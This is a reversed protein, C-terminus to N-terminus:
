FQFYIFSTSQVVPFLIIIIVSFAFYISWRLVVKQRSIWDIVDVKLSAMDYIALLLISIGILLAEGKSIGLQSKIYTKPSRIGDLSHSFVYLADAFSNARFLIWLLSCILFTFIVLIIKGVNMKKRVKNEIIQLFGHLGGWAVYTWNAGHWLGSVLFTFFLNFRQRKEGCRNGGMPIYIYDRFWTSLSIHWRSWFEKLSSSFYPSKFNVMLEIGMLKATGIAIDSYGSFDCYIQISFFFIVLLLDIGVYNEVSAYVTDVYIALVDAIAFKKFFGWAMLKLGYTAQNYDFSKEGNLEPLLHSAREIPGAVLQPFFSVFTAYKGLHKEPLIEGKYVDIVYSLTQFTYFSIGVPLILDITVPSLQISFVGLIGWISDLLFGLYKYILLIGICVVASFGLIAKRKSVNNTKELTVGAGWSVLITFLILVIYKISWSMYFYLSACLLLFWRYKHPLIWYFIIVIPCFILFSVTTFSM